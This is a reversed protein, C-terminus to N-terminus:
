KIGIMKQIYHFTPNSSDYSVAMDYRSMIASAWPSVSYSDTVWYKNKLIVKELEPIGDEGSERIERIERKRNRKQPHLFLMKVDLYYQKNLDVSNLQIRMILLLQNKFPVLYTINQKTPLWFTKRQM